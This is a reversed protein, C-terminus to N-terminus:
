RFVKNFFFFRTGVADFFRPRAGRLEPKIGVLKWRWCSRSLSYHSSAPPGLWLCINATCTLPGSCGNALGAWGLALPWIAPARAPALDLPPRTFWLAGWVWPGLAHSRHPGCPPWSRLLPHPQLTGSATSLQFPSPLTMSTGWAGPYAFNQCFLSGWLTGWFCCLYFYPFLFKKAFLCYPSYLLFSVKCEM